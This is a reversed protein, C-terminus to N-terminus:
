APLHPLTVPDIRWVRGSAPPECLTPLANPTRVNPEHGLAMRLARFLAGHAVVLVPGPRATARNIAAVARDHLAQFTEAGDPTFTGAIWDDYWDGMPKGEETGFAVEQLEVDTAVPLNLAEAVIEATRLARSLPSAVISVVGRDVMALAARRAQVLGVANLPIDTRGQSRGEANWDTEGHRLFWFPTPNLALTM